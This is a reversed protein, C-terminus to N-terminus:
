LSYDSTSRRINIQSLSRTATLLDRALQEYRGVYGLLRISDPVATDSELIWQRLRLSWDRWAPLLSELAQEPSQRDAELPRSIEESLISHHRHLLQVVLDDFRAVMPCAENSLETPIVPALQGACS